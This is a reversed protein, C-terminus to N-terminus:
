FPIRDLTAPFFDKIAFEIPVDWTAETRGDNWHVTPMVFTASKNNIDYEIVMRKYNLKCKTEWEPDKLWILPSYEGEFVAGEKPELSEMIKLWIMEVVDPDQKLFDRVHRTGTHSGMMWGYEFDVDDNGQLVQLQHNYFPQVLFVQVFRFGGLYCEGSEPRTIWLKM